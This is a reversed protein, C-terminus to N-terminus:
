PRRSVLILMKSLIFVHFNHQCVCNVITEVCKQNYLDFIEMMTIITSVMNQQFFISQTAKLSPDVLALCCDIKHEGKNSTPKSKLVEIDLFDWPQNHEFCLLWELVYKGEHFWWECKIRLILFTLNEWM